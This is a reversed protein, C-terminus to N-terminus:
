DHDRFSGGTSILLRLLETQRTTKTKLFISRLHTRATEYSVHKALAFSRLSEGALLAQVLESESKSLGFLRALSRYSHFFTDDTGSIFVIAAARSVGNSFMNDTPLASVHIVYQHNTGQRRVLVADSFHGELGKDLYCAANIALQLRRTDQLLLCTMEGRTKEINLGDGRRLVTEASANIYVVKQKENILLIGHALRDLAALTSAFQLEKEMLRYQVGIAKSLHAVLLSLRSKDDAHFRNSRIGRFCSIATTPGHGSDRGFVVGICNHVVDSFKLFEGYFPSKLLQPTPILEEGLFVNGDFDFGREVAAKNWPDIKHFHEGYRQLWVDEIGIAFAVRGESNSLFPTHLIGRESSMFGLVSTLVVPWKKPDLAADYINELVVSFKGLQSHL